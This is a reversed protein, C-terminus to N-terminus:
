LHYVIETRRRSRRSGSSSSSWGLSPRPLFSQKLYFQLQKSRKWTRTNMAHVHLKRSWNHSSELKWGCKMLNVKFYPLGMFLLTFYSLWYGLILDKCQMKQSLIKIRNWSGLGLSLTHQSTTKLHKKKKKKKWIYYKCIKCLCNDKILVVYVIDCHPQPPFLINELHTIKQIWAWTKFM